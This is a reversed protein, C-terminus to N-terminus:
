YTRRREALLCSLHLTWRLRPNWGGNLGSLSVKGEWGCKACRCKWWISASISNQPKHILRPPTKTEWIQAFKENDNTQCSERDRGTFLCSTSYQFLIPFQQLFPSTETISARSAARPNDERPKSTILSLQSDIGECFPNVPGPAHWWFAAEFLSFLFSCNESRSCITGTECSLWTNVIKLFMCWSWHFNILFHHENKDDM